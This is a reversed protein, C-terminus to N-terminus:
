FIGTSLSVVTSGKTTDIDKRASGANRQAVLFFVGGGISITCIYFVFLALQTDMFVEYSSVIMAFVIATLTVSHEGLAECLFQMCSGAVALSITTSSTNNLISSLYLAISWAQHSRRTMLRFRRWLDLVWLSSCEATSVNLYSHNSRNM